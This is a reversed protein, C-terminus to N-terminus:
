EILIAYLFKKLCSQQHPKNNCITKMFDCYLQTQIENASSLDMHNNLCELLKKTFANLFKKLHYSNLIIWKKEFIFINKPKSEFAKIPLKSSKFWSTLINKVGPSEFSFATTYKNFCTELQSKSITQTTYYSAFSISPPDTENLVHVLQQVKSIKPIQTLQQNQDELTEIREVLNKILSLLTKPSTDSQQLIRCTVKHSVSSYEKTCFECTDM